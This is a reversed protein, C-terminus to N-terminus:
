GLCPRWDAQIHHSELHHIMALSHEAKVVVYRGLWFHARIRLLDTSAIYIM